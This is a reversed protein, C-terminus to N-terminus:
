LWLQWRSVYASNLGTNTFAVIRMPMFSQHSQAPTRSAVFKLSEEFSTFVERSSIIDSIVYRLLNKPKKTSAEAFEKKL